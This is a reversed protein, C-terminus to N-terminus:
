YVKWFQNGAEGFWHLEGVSDPPITGGGGLGQFAVVFLTNVSSGNEIIAYPGGTYEEAWLTMDPMHVAQGEAAGTLRQCLGDDDDYQHPDTGIIVDAFGGYLHEEPGEHHDPQVETIGLQNLSFADAEDITIQLAQDTDRDFRSPMHFTCAATVEIGPPPAGVGDYEWYTLGSDYDVGIHIFPFLSVGNVWVPVGLAYFILFFDPDLPHTPRTIKRVHSLGTAEDTYVKQIQFVRNTGDTVAPEMRSRDEPHTPEPVESHFRSTSFDTLDKFRWKVAAGRTARFMSLIAAVDARSAVAKSVDFQIRSQTEDWDTPRVEGGSDTEIVATRHGVGGKTGPSLREPLLIQHNSM